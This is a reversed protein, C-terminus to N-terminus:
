ALQGADVQGPREGQAYWMGTFKDKCINLDDLQRM